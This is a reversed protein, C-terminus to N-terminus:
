LEAPSALAAHKPLVRITYGFAGPRELAVQGEFRHRGGEYSEAHTLPTGVPDLISDEGKVRGHVVEVCVDDPSLSGLSVYVQLNMAGGVVPSESVGESDVHDIRVQDWGTRV